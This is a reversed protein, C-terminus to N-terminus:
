TTRAVPVDTHSAPKAATSQRNSLGARFNKYSDIVTTEKASAATKKHM